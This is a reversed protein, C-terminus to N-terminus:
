LVPALGLKIMISELYHWEVRDYGEDIVVRSYNEKRGEKMSHVSEYAVLVNDTVLHGLVFLM